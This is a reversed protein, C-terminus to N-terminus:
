APTRYCDTNHQEDVMVTWKGLASTMLVITNRKWQFAADTIDPGNASAPM